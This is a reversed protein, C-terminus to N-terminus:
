GSGKMQDYTRKLESVYKRVPDQPGTVFKQKRNHTGGLRAQMITSTAEDVAMPRNRSVVQLFFVSKSFSCRLLLTHLKKKVM